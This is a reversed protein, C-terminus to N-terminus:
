HRQRFDSRVHTIAKELDAAFYKRNILFSEERLLHKLDKTQSYLHRIADYAGYQGAYEGPFRFGDSSAAQQPLTYHVFDIYRSAWQKYDKIFRSHFHRRPLDNASHEYFGLIILSAYRSVRLNISSGSPLINM